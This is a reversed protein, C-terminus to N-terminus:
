GLGQRLNRVWALEREYFAVWNETIKAWLHTERPTRNPTFLSRREQEKMMKCKVYIEEEYAALLADLEQDDLQNAWSLQVHFSNKLQPLEPQTQVWKKLEALGETTITYIKRSPLSEQHEVEKTVLGNKHLDVLARYIQNNNGSWYLMDSEAFMKKLDYGTAPQWSLFGLIAYKISM